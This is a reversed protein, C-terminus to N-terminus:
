VFKIAIKKPQPPSPSLSPPREAVVEGVASQEAM